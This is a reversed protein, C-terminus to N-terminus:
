EVKRLFADRYGRDIFHYLVSGGEDSSLPGVLVKYLERAGKHAAYVSVPYLPSLSSAMNLASGSELFVGLQVYYKDSLLSSEARISGAAAAIAPAQATAPQAGGATPERTEPKAAEAPAAAPPTPALAAVSPAALTPTPLEGQLAFEPGVVAPAPEALALVQPISGAPVPPVASPPVEALAGGAPPTLTPLESALPGSEAPPAAARGSPASPTVPVLQPAAEEPPNSGSLEAVQPSPVVVAPEPLKEIAPPQNSVSPTAAPQLAVVTPTSSPPAAVEPAAGAPAASPAAVAPSPPVTPSAPSVATAPPALEALQPAKGAAPAAAASPAPSAPSSPAETKRKKALYQDLFALSTPSGVGAAPYVDSDPSYPLDGPGGSALPQKALTVRVHATTGPAVGLADGADKSLLLLLGSAATRDIILVTAQKGTDLDQVSVLTNQPFSNSAGYFGTSPFVGYASVASNGEWVEQAFLAGACAFALCLALIRKM